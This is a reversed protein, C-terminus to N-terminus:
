SVDLFTRSQKGEGYITLPHGSLADKIFRTIVFEDSQLPGYTNFFRLITYPLGHEKEYARLYSEGLNKVVAYPIRSNLPTTEEHQPIEVPEGYVESSSAFFIRKCNSKLALNLVNRIGYIDNLVMIPNEQTRKVGVVAAYHFIYDFQYKKIIDQTLKDNNIDGEIFSINESHDSLNSLRGTLLNDVVTVKFNPIKALEISLTSGIHGAGGTELVNIKNKKM